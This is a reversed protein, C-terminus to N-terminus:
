CTDCNLGILPKEEFLQFKTLKGFFSVTARLFHFLFRAAWQREHLREVIRGGQALLFLVSKVDSGKHDLGPQTTKDQFVRLFISLLFVGFIARHLSAFRPAYEVLDKPM